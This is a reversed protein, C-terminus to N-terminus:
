YRRTLWMGTLRPEALFWMYCSVPYLLISCCIMIIDFLWYLEDYCHYRLRDMIACYLWSLIILYYDLYRFLEYYCILM